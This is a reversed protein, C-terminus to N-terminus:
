EAAKRIAEIDVNGDELVGVTVIRMGAMVAGAPNTGHAVLIGGTQLTALKPPVRTHLPHWCLPPALPTPCLKAEVHTPSHLDLHRRCKGVCGGSRDGAQGDM